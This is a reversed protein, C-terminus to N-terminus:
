QRMGWYHILVEQCDKATPILSEIRDLRKKSILGLADARKQAEKQVQVATETGARLLDVAHNQKAIEAKLDAIQETLSTVQDQLGNEVPRFEDGARWDGVKMGGAFVAVLLAIGAIIKFKSPGLM